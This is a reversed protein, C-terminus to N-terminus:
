KNVYDRFEQKVPICKMDAYNILLNAIYKPDKFKMISILIDSLYDDGLKEKENISLRNILGLMVRKLFCMEDKVSILYVLAKNMDSEATNDPKRSARTIYKFANGYSFHLNMKYIYDVAQKGNSLKYYDQQM